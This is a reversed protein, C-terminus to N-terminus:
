KSTSVVQSHFIEVSESIGPFSIVKTDEKSNSNDKLLIRIDFNLFRMLQRFNQHIGKLKSMSISDSSVDVSLLGINRGNTRSELAFEGTIPGNLLSYIPIIVKGLSEDKGMHTEYLGLEIFFDESLISDEILLEEERFNLTIGSKQLAIDDGTKISEKPISIVRSQCSRKKGSDSSGRVAAGVYLDSGKLEFPLTRVHHLLISIKHLSDQSATRRSSSFELDEATPGPALFNKVKTTLNM